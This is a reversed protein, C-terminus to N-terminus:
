MKTPAPIGLLWLGNQLTQRVSDVVALKHPAEETGDLIQEQAYWSNFASALAILYTAVIHPELEEQAKKVNEYFRYIIRAVDTPQAKTDFKPTIVADRAKELIACTRAYAYQLYPGSDGEVSLARERDFIIDKGTGGKLIQFKIAAVAVDRALQEKDDARSEAAREKAVEILDDVLSEGTIVDGTRSSMKGSELRMMGHAIHKIKGQKSPDIIEAAKTTVAFFNNQEVATTVISIDPDHKEFKLKILGMEKGEYTPLGASTIFVRTNLGYKEGPFIVAGDSEEFVTGVHERVVDLGDKWVQSEFFYDDFKTGLLAYLDEFHALSAERGKTYIANIAADSEAYVAKNIADIETKAVPDSEYAKAGHAYARGIEDANDPEIGLQLLGWIAKGIHLGVDGQYNVRIVKAASFHLLRSISEGTANSMLHGIHFPKFPNPQTYDVMIKKGKNLDTGGWEKPNERGTQLNEWLASPAIKFNIFGPGAIEIGSVGEVEGLNAVLEEALARPNKGAQKAYKLAVGTAYDGHAIEGPLELSIDDASVAIGAAGLASALKGRILSAIDMAPM